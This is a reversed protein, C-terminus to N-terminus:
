LQTEHLGPTALGDLGRQQLRWATALLFSRFLDLGCVPIPAAGAAYGCPRHPFGM